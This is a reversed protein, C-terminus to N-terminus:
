KIIIMFMHLLLIRSLYTFFFTHPIKIHYFIIISLNIFIKQKLVVTIAHIEALHFSVNNKLYKKKNISMIIGNSVVSTQSLAM